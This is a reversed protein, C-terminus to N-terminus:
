NRSEVFNFIGVQRLNAMESLLLADIGSTCQELKRMRVALPRPHTYTKCINKKCKAKQM